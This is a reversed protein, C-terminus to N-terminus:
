IEEWTGIVVQGFGYETLAGLCKGHLDQVAEAKEKSVVFFWTSGAPVLPQLPRPRRNALDWGGVQQLKGVCASVCEGPVDPPGQLIAAAPNVYRGPTVLTLAFRIKGDKGPKLEPSEPLLNSLEVVEVRALRGEGGLRVATPRDPHWSEEIGAVVAGLRASQPRVHSGSYLQGTEATRSDANREIGVRPEITWLDSSTFVQEKQPLGGELVARLGQRTLWVPLLKAGPLDSDPVPLRVIGLDCPVPDGPVLRVFRYTPDKSERSKKGILILPAPFLIDQGQHDGKFVYPGQLRLRGLDDPGGLEQPWKEKLEATWGRSEALATRVAGQITTMFPPFVSEVGSQNGDEANFPSGDRFFWTDLASFIWLKTM